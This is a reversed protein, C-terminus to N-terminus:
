LIAYLAAALALVASGTQVSPLSAANPKTSPNGAGTSGAGNTPNTGTATPTASATYLPTANQDSVELYSPPSNPTGCQFKTSCAAYCQNANNDNPCKKNCDAAKGQCEELVIPWLYPKFDPTKTKCGCGWGMTKTNCFNKPAENPGGCNNSCYATQRNCIDVRSAEPLDLISWDAAESLTITLAVALSTIALLKM